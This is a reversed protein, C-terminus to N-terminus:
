CHHHSNCEINLLVIYMYRFTSITEPLFVVVFYENWWLLVALMAFVKSMFIGARSSDTQKDTRGDTQQTQRDTRRKTQRHSRRDTRGTRLGVRYSPICPVINLKKKFKIKGRSRSDLVKLHCRWHHVHSRSGRVGPHGQRVCQTKCAADRNRKSVSKIQIELSVFVACMCVRVHACIWGWESPRVSASVSACACPM